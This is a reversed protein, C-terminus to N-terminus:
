QAQAWAHEGEIHNSLNRLIPSSAGAKSNVGPELNLMQIFQRTSLPLERTQTGTVTNGLEATETAVTMANAEVTVQQAAPALQLALDVRVKEAASLTIGTRVLRKFGQAEAAVEYTRVPLFSM